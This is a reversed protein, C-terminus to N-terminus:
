VLKRRPILGVVHRSRRGVRGAAGEVWRGGHRLRMGAEIGHERVHLRCVRIRLQEGMTLVGFGARASGM